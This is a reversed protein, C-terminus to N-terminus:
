QGPVTLARYNTHSYESAAVRRRSKRLVGSPRARM